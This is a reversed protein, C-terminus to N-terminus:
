EDLAYLENGTYRLLGITPVQVLMQPTPYGDRWVEGTAIVDGVPRGQTTAVEGPRM